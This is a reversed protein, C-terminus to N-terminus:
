RGRRSSGCNEGLIGAREGAALLQSHGDGPRQRETGFRPEEVLGGRRQIGPAGVHEHAEETLEGRLSSRDEHHGVIGPHELLESPPAELEDGAMEVAVGLHPRGGHAVDRDGERLSSSESPRIAIAIAM